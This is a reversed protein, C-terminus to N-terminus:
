DGKFNLETFARDLLVTLKGYPYFVTGSDSTSKNRYSFMILNEDKGRSLCANGEIGILDIKKKRFVEMNIIELVDDKTFALEIFCNEQDRLDFSVHVQNDDHSVRYSTKDENM